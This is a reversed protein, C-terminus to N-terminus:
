DAGVGVFAHGHEIVAHAAAGSAHSTNFRAAIEDADIHIVLIELNGFLANLVGSVDCGSGFNCRVAPALFAGPRIRNVALTRYNRHVFSAPLCTDDGPLFEVFEILFPCICARGM